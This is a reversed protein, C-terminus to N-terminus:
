HWSSCALLGRCISWSCRQAMCFRLAHLFVITPAPSPRTGKNHSLTHTHTSTCILSAEQSPDFLRSTSLMESSQRSPHTTYCV